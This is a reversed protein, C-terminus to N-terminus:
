NEEMAKLLNELTVSAVRKQAEITQAGIHPTIIVNDMSILEKETETSPPENWLVDSAYGSVTGNKLNELLAEADIAEARSTNIIMSGKKLSKFQESGILKKSGKELTLLVFVVDSTSLLEELPLFTGGIEDMLLSNEYIDFAVINMGLAKLVGATASGIRGFGIIGATKGSLEMGKEKKFVGDRVQSNLKVMKRSLNILLGTNLEVVSQTSSGAATIIKIGMSEATEMDINDTGIGARAIFKLNEAKQLLDKTIKTRSRVVIADYTGIKEELEGNSISPMFDVDHGERRLGEMLAEDVPDSVLVKMLTSCQSTSMEAYNDSYSKVNIKHLSIM